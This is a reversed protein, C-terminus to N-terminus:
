QGPSLFSRHCVTLNHIQFKGELAPNYINTGYSTANKQCFKREKRGGKRKGVALHLGLYTSQVGTDTSYSGPVTWRGELASGAM